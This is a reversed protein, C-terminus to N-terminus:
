ERPKPHDYDYETFRKGDREHKDIRDEVLDQYSIGTYVIKNRFYLKYNVTDSYEIFSLIREIIVSGIIALLILMITKDGFLKTNEEM